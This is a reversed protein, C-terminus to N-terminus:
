PCYSMLTLLRRESMVKLPKAGISPNPAPKRRYVKAGSAYKVYLLSNWKWSTHSLIADISDISDAPEWLDPSLCSVLRM